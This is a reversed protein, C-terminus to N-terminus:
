YKFRKFIYSDAGFIINKTSINYDECTVESTHNIPKTGFNRILSKDVPEGALSLAEIFDEVLNEYKGIFSVEYNNGFYYKSMNYLSHGSYILDGTFKNIDETDWSAVRRHIKNYKFLSKYWEFPNRIFSFSFGTIAKYYYGTHGGRCSLDPDIREFSSKSVVLSREIWSGGTKPMHLFTSNTYKLELSPM